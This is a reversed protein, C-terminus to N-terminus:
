GKMDIFALWNYCHFSQKNIEVAQAQLSLPPVSLPLPLISCWALAPAEMFLQADRDMSSGLLCLIGLIYGLLKGRQTFNTTKWENRWKNHQLYYDLLHVWIWVLSIFECRTLIDMCFDTVDPLWLFRFLILFWEKRNKLTKEKESKSSNWRSVTM